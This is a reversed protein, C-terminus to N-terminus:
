LGLWAGDIDNGANLLEALLWKLRSDHPFWLVLQKVITLADAPMNAWQEAALMGSEYQGSPGVFHVRPFLADLVRM